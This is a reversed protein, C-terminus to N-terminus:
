EHFHGRCVITLDPNVPISASLRPFMARICELAANIRVGVLMKRDSIYEIAIGVLRRTLAQQGNSEAAVFSWVPGGSMGQPNPAVLERGNSNDLAHNLDFEVVIHKQPSLGASIYDAEAVALAQFGYSKKGERRWPFGFFAYLKQPVFLDNVDACEIPLPKYATEVHCATEQDLAIVSTDDRDDNRLGSAPRTLKG